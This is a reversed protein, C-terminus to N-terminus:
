SIATSGMYRSIPTQPELLGTFFAPGRALTSAGNSRPPRWYAAMFSVRINIPPDANIRAENRAMTRCLPTPM